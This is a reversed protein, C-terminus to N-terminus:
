QSFCIKDILNEINKRYIISEDMKQEVVRKAYAVDSHDRRYFKAIDKQKHGFQTMIYMAAQRPHSYFPKRSNIHLEEATLEYEKAVMFNIYVMGRFPIGGDRRYEQFWNEIVWRPYEDSLNVRGLVYVAFDIVQKM